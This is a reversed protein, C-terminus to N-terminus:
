RGRWKKLKKLVWDFAFMAALGLMMGIATFSFVMVAEYAVDNPTPSM